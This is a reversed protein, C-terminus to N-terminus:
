YVLIKYCIIEHYWSYLFLFTTKGLYSFRQNCIAANFLKQSYPRKSQPLSQWFTCLQCIGDCIQIARVALQGDEIWWTGCFPLSFRSSGTVDVYDNRRAPSDHSIQHLAKLVQKLKWDTSQEGTKLAGHISGAHFLGCSGTSLLKSMDNETRYNRLESFFVWNMNLGDM